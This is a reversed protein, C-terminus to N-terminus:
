LLGGSKVQAELDAPTHQVRRQLRPDAFGAAQALRRFDGVYMATSLGSSVLM